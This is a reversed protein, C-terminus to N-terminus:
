SGHVLIADIMTSWVGDVAIHQAQDVYRSGAEEMEEDSERMAMIAARMAALVDIQGVFQVDRLDDGERYVLPTPARERAQAQVAALFAEAAVTDMRGPGANLTM